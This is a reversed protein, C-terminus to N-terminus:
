SGRKAHNNHRTPVRSLGGNALRLRNVVKLNNLPPELTVTVSNDAINPEFLFRVAKYNTLLANPAVNYARLPERDFAGPDYEGVDFYSDDLLLDGNISTVGANRIERLLKWFQETVLYPDGFGQLLLDGDLVGDQVDGLFYVDTKWRYTPGLEELAVLTTVTKAVSAPNRLEMDNWRLMVEGTALNEVYVSLTDHPVDRYNLASQLSLPLSEQTIGVVPLLLLGILRICKM